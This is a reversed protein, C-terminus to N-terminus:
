PSTLFQRRSTGLLSSFAPSLTLMELPRILAFLYPPFNTRMTARVGGHHRSTLAISHPWLPYLRWATCITRDERLLGLLIHESAIVSSGYQSAEYRAFFITRRAKETYREFM